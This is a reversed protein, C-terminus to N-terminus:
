VELLRTCRAPSKCGGDTLAFQVLMYQMTHINQYLLFKFILNIFFFRHEMHKNSAARPLYFNSRLSKKTTKKKVRTEITDAFLLDFM